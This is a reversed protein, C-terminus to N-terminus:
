NLGVYRSPEVRTGNIRLEFHLHAGTSNGTTGVYGIVEGKKVSYSGLPHKYIRGGAAKVQSEGCLNNSTTPYDTTYAATCKTFGSLHAYRAETRGDQSKFLIYNGYSVLKGSYKNSGTAIWQQCTITGDQIAYVPQGNINSHNVDHRVGSTVSRWYAGPLRLPNAYTKTDPQPDPDPDPQTQSIYTSSCYGKRGNYSCYAWGNSIFSVELQSRYPMTTLKAGGTSPSQRLILGAKTTVYYITTTTIPASTASKLKFKQATSSNPEYVWLNTGSNAVGGSVDMYWCLKNKIICTKYFCWLQADSANYDYLWINVGSGQVGGQVDLVRGSTPNTIRYYGEKM